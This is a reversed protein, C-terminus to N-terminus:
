EDSGERAPQATMAPRLYHRSVTREGEFIWVTYQGFHRYNKIRSILRMSKQAFWHAAFKDGYRCRFVYHKPWVHQCSLGGRASRKFRYAPEFAM